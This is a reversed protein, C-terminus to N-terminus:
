NWGLPVTLVSQGEVSVDVRELELRAVRVGKRLVSWGFPTDPEVTRVDELVDIPVKRGLFPSYAAEAQRVEGGGLAVVEFGAVGNAEDWRVGPAVHLRTRVAHARRARLRDVVVLGNRPLWVLTRHHEVPDALRRYGDHSATAVAYNRDSRVVGVRVRPPFAVRFDGWLECQDV